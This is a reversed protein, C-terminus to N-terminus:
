IAPHLMLSNNCSTGIDHLVTLDTSDSSNHSGTESVMFMESCYSSWAIALANALTSALADDGRPGM